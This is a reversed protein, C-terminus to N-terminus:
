FHPKKMDAISNLWGVLRREGALKNVLGEIWEKYEGIDEGNASLSQLSRHYEHWKGEEAYLTVLWPHCASSRLFSDIWCFRCEDEAWTGEKLTDVIMAQGEVWELFMDDEVFGVILRSMERTKVLLSEFDEKSIYQCSIHEDCITYTDLTLSDNATASCDLLSRGGNKTM